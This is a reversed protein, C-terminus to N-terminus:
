TAMALNRELEGIVGATSEVRGFIRSFLELEVRHNIENSASCCDEVIACRFGRDAADRATTGVCVNTLVGGFLLCDVGMSRLASEVGTSAFASFTKKCLILEDALQKFEEIIEYEPRGRLDNRLIYRHKTHAPADSYDPKEAGTIVHLVRLGNYRFFSLLRKLNPIVIRDVRDFRYDDTKALGEAALAAHQLIPLYQMDVIILAARRVDLDFTYSPIVDM